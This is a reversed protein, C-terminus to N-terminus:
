EGSLFFCVRFGRLVGSLSRRSVCRKHEALGGPLRLKSALMGGLRAAFLIVGVQLALLTMKETLPLEGAAASAFMITNM